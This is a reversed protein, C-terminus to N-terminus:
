KALIQPCFDLLTVAVAVASAYLGDPEETGTSVAVFGHSIGFQSGVTGDGHEGSIFDDSPVMEFPPDNM